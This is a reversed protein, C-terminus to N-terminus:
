EKNFLTFYISTFPNTTNKGVIFYKIGYRNICLRWSKFTPITANASTIIEVKVTKSNVFSASLETETQGVQNANSELEGTLVNIEKDFYELSLSSYGRYNEALLMKSAMDSGIILNENSVFNVQYSMKLNDASDKAVYLKASAVPLYRDDFPIEKGDPLSRYMGYLDYDEETYEKQRELFFSVYEARGYVGDTFPVDKQLNYRIGEEIMEDSTYAKSGASVNNQTQFIVAISNGVAVTMVPLLVGESPTLEQTNRDYTRLRVMDVYQGDGNGKLSKILMNMLYETGIPNSNDQFSNESINIFDETLIYRDHETTIEYLRFDNPIQVYAGLQNYQTSLAIDALIYDRNVEATISSIYDLGDREGVKPMDNVNKFIYKVNRTTTGLMALRGKLAEGFAKRSLRTASQNYALSLPITGDYSTKHEKVIGSVLPVYEVRFALNNIYDSIHLRGNFRDMYATKIINIIAYDTFIGEVSTLTEPKFWLGNINNSGIQYYIAFTKSLPFAGKYSSLLSYEQQEFVYKTIDVTYVGDDNQIRCLLKKIKAIPYITQIFASGEQIRSEEVSTRLTRFLSTAPEFMEGGTSDYDVLNSFTSTLSESYDSASYFEENSFMRGKSFDANKTQGLFDFTIKSFDDGLRPIAHIYKGIESLCEWLSRGADFQFEPSQQEFVSAMSEDPEFYFTPEHLPEFEDNVRLSQVTELLTTIVDNITYPVVQAYNPMVAIEFTYQEGRDNIEAGEGFGWCYLFRYHGQRDFNMQFTDENEIEGKYSCQYLDATINNHKWRNVEAFMINEDLGYESYFVYVASYTGFDSPNQISGSTLDRLSPITANGLELPTLKQVSYKSGFLGDEHTNGNSWSGRYYTGIAKIPENTLNVNRPNTFSKGGVIYRELIKTPEILTLDHNFVKRGYLESPRDDALAYTRGCLNVKSFPIFPASQKMGVLMVKASDLTEDLTNQFSYPYHLYPSYDTNNISISLQNM